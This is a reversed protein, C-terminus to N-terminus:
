GGPPATAPSPVTPAPAHDFVAARVAAVDLDTLVRVIDPYIKEHYGFGGLCLEAIADAKSWNMFVMRYGAVALGTRDSGHWCHVLVPKPADRILQLIKILDSVTLSGADVPYQLTAIGARNLGAPDHHYHRLSLVSKIGISTLDKIDSPAPQESRYLDAGVRYCNTLSALAVPQAWTAPRGGPADAGCLAVALLVFLLRTRSVTSDEDDIL